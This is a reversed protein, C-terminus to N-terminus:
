CLILKSLLFTDLQSSLLHNMYFYIYRVHYGYSASWILPTSGDISYVNVEPRIKLVYELLQVYGTISAIHMLYIHEGYMILVIATLAAAILLSTFLKFATM